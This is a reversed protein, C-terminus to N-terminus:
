NQVDIQGDSEESGSSYEFRLDKPPLNYFGSEKRVLYRGVDLLDMREIEEPTPMRRKNREYEIVSKRFIYEAQIHNVWIFLNGHERIIEFLPTIHKGWEPHRLEYLFEDNLGALKVKYHTETDDFIGGCKIDNLSSIHTLKDMYAKAQKRREERKRDFYNKVEDFKKEYAIDADIWEEQTSGKWKILFEGEGEPVENENMISAAEEHRFDVITEIELRFKVHKPKDKPVKRNCHQCYKCGQSKEACKRACM